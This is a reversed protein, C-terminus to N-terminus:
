KDSLKLWNVSIIFTWTCYGSKLRRLVNKKKICNEALTIGSLLKADGERSFVPDKVPVSEKLQFFPQNLYNLM